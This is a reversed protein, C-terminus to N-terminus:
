PVSPSIKWLLVNYPLSITSCSMLGAARATVSFVALSNKAASSKGKVTLAVVSRLVASRPASNTIIEMSTPSRKASHSRSQCIGCCYPMPCTYPSFPPGPPSNWESRIIGGIRSMQASTASM